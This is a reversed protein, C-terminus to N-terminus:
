LHFVSNRVIIKLREGRNSTDRSYYRVKPVCNNAYCDIAEGTDLKVCDNQCDDCAEDRKLFRARQDTSHKM